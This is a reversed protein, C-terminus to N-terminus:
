PSRSFPEDRQGVRRLETSKGSARRRFDVGLWAASKGAETAVDDAAIDLQQRALADHL